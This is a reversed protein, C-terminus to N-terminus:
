NAKLQGKEANQAPPAIIINTPHRPRTRTCKLMIKSRQPKYGKTASEAAGIEAVKAADRRQKGSM